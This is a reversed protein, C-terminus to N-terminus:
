VTPVAKPTVAFGVPTVIRAPEVPNDVTVTAYEFPKVPATVRVLVTEGLVPKVHVRSTVVRVVEPVEERAQEPWAPTYVTVTVPVLPELV